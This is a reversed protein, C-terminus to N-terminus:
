FNGAPAVALAHATSPERTALIWVLAGVSVLAVGLSIDAFLAERRMTAVASPDCTPRCSDFGDAKSKAILGFTAFAGLGLAAVGGLALVSGPLGRSPEPLSRKPAEPPPALDVTILRRKEGERLFLRLAADRGDQAVFRVSHEGPDVAIALGTLKEAIPEGDVLIRVDRVESGVGDRVVAVITPQAEEVDALWQTCETQIVAPCADRACAVFKTRAARLAGARKLRQGAAHDQICEEKEQALAPSQFALLVLM